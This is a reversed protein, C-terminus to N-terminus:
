KRTYDIHIMKFEKGTKPDNGFMEMTMENESKFTDVERMMAPKKTIPCNFTFNWTMTKKDASLEGTGTSFGTSMSDIWSCVYKGSVNDYGYTGEGMFPGMGPMESNVNVRVFRGDLLSTNVATCTTNMAESDPGMWMTEKGHWTGAHSAMFQHQEGPTGAVMCAQMDEMTWGKPLKMEPQGQPAAHPNNAHPNSPPAKPKENQAFAIAGGVCAVVIAASVVLCNKCVM